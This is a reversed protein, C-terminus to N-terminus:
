RDHGGRGEADLQMISCSEVASAPTIVGALFSLAVIASLIIKM